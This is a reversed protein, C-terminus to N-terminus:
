PGTAFPLFAAISNNTAKAVGQVFRDPKFLQVDQGWFEPEHQIALTPFAVEVNAPVILKELRVERNVKRREQKRKVILTSHWFFVTWALVTNTTEHGAFYITKCEDVMEDVSIRKEDNSDHRAKLVLGLYDGGFSEEDGIAAKEERKKIIERISNRM